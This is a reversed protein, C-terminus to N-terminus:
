PSALYGLVWTRALVVERSRCADGVSALTLQSGDASLSSVYRGVDGLNCGAPLYGDAVQWDTGAISTFEWYDGVRTVTSGYWGSGPYSLPLSVVATEGLDLLMKEGALRQHFFPLYNPAAWVGFPIEHANWARALVAERSPCADGNSALTLLAGDASISWTYIGVDGLKCGALELQDVWVPM